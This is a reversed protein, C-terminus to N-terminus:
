DCSIGNLGKGFLSRKEHDETCTKPFCPQFLIFQEHHAIEGKGVTNETWESFKRGNENFRFNDDAFEETQFLRFNTTQSLTLWSFDTLITM